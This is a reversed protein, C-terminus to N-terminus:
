RGRVRAGTSRGHRDVPNDVESGITPSTHRINRRGCRYKHGTRTESAFFLVCSAQALGISSSMEARNCFMCLEAVVQKAMNKWVIGHPPTHHMNCSRVAAYMCLDHVTRDYM